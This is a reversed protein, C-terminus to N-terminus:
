CVNLGHELNTLINNFLESNKYVPQGENSGTGVFTLLKLCEKPNKPPTRFKFFKPM